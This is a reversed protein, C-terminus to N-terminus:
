QRAVSDLSAWHQGPRPFDLEAASPAAPAAAAAAAARHPLMPPSNSAATPLYRCCIPVCHNGRLDDCGGSRIRSSTGVHGENVAVSLIFVTGFTIHHLLALFAAFTPLTILPRAYHAGRSAISFEAVTQVTLLAKLSRLYYNVGAVAHCLCPSIVAVISPASVDAAAVVVVLDRRRSPQQHIAPAAVLYASSRSQQEAAANIVVRVCRASVACCRLRHRCAVAAAQSSTSPCSRRCPLAGAKSSQLLM